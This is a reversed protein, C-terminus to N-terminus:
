EEVGSAVLEVEALLNQWCPDCYEAGDEDTNIDEPAIPHNCGDCLVEADVQDDEDLHDGAVLELPGPLRWQNAAQARAQEETVPTLCFLASGGYLQTGVPQGDRGLVDISLLKTGFAEVETVFGVLSRHGMLEAVAWQGTIM